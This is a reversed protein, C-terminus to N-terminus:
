STERLRGIVEWEGQEEALAADVAEVFATVAAADGARAAARAKALPEGALADLREINEAYREANRRSTDLAALAGVLGILATAVVGSAAFLASGEGVLGVLSDLLATGTAEASRGRFGALLAASELGTPLAAVASTLLGVAYLRRMRTATRRQNPQKWAYYDRQTEMQFRRYFALGTVLAEARPLALPLNSARRYYARRAAEAASRAALWARRPQTLYIVLSLAGAAFVFLGQTAVAIRRPLETEAGDSLLILPLTALVAGAAAGALLYGRAFHASQRRKAIANQRDYFSALDALGPDALADALAPAIPRVLEAQAQPDLRDLDGELRDFAADIEDARSKPLMTESEAM